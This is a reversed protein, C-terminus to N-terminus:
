GHSNEHSKPAAPAAPGHGHDDHGGHGNEGHGAGGQELLQTPADAAAFAETPNYVRAQYRIRNRVNLEKLIEYSLTHKFLERVRSTPNNLDGFIIAQTPCTQACAPVIEQDNVRWTDRKGQLWENKAPITAAKIRQVCFTCKEMVGRMRVTVEPNFQMRRIPDIMEHQQQDPIGLYMASFMDGRLPKSHWDFYNFRRVKYPCNNSCYRTGVCRNYVMVNLGETDHVTAAVPCVSECPATECHQCLMPQHVTRPNAPDGGFYRDVRLWHMERNRDVQDKGVVPVNNEAQCAIVCAQCGTCTNLNIAMGWAHGEYEVPYEWLQLPVIKDPSGTRDEGTQMTAFHMAHTPHAAFEPHEKYQELTATRVLNGFVRNHREQLGILDIAFHDQTTVLNYNRGTVAVQVAPVIWLNETTRLQYTDFGVSDGVYGASKRGYGLSVKITRPSQGPMAFVPVDLTRDGATLRILDGKKLGLQKIVEPALWAANDWTIKSLPEPMEQLWANNAFRGDFLKHDQVLELEFEGVTPAQTLGVTEAINGAVKVDVPPLETGLVFGEHLAKRWAAEFAAQPRLAAFTRRVIEYGAVVPDGALMALLEIPSRSAYLPQILPQQLTVLGNWARADGWCELYHSRPLHWTSLVSTEDHYLSLHVSLPVKAVAAGFNLNAPADYVPNGGLMILTTVQGADIAKALQAIQQLDSPGEGAPEAIYTVTKGVNGLKENIAHVLAHVHPPQSPGAVLVSAGPHAKLDAALDKVFLAARDGLNAAGGVNIGLALAVAKVLEGVQSAAVPVRVDANSSTISLHADAAYMRSIETRGDTLTRTKAWDRSYRVSAPHGHLIDADFAAIVQAKDLNLVSRVPKGFAMRAGELENTRTLPEWEYWTVGPLAKALAQRMYVASPGTMAEALIAVGQGQTAQIQQIVAAFDNWTRVARGTATKVTVYRSRNPDYMDLISAQCYADTAGLSQPHSPNGEVKIPRGDVSEVLLPRAVGGLEFTTAYQEEVGPARDEPQRVFPALQRQPWRRCGPLGAAGALALSAGMLKMFTRRNPAAVIQDPDYDAFEKSLLERYEPSDALEDLSRWFARGTKQTNMSSM